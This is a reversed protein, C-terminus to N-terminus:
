RRGGATRGQEEPTPEALGRWCVPTSPGAVPAVPRWVRGWFFFFVSLTQPLGKDANGSERHAPKARRGEQDHRSETQQHQRQQRCEGGDGRAAESSFESFHRKRKGHLAWPRETPAPWRM